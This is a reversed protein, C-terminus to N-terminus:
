KLQGNSLFYSSLFSCEIFYFRLEPLLLFPASVSFLLYSVNCTEPQATIYLRSTSQMNVESLLLTELDTPVFLRAKIFDSCLARAKVLM